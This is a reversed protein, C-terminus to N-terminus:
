IKVKGRVNGARGSLRADSHYAAFRAGVRVIGAVHRSM